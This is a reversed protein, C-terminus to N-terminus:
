KIYGSEVFTNYKMIFTSRYSYYYTYGSMNFWAIPWSSVGDGSSQFYNNYVYTNNAQKVRVGGANIFFNSYVVNYDGNRLSVMAGQNDGFTCFRVINQRSKISVAESDAGYTSNFVCYEVVTRSVYTHMADVGIRINEDGFDTSYAPTVIPSDPMNYFSCYRIKHYGPANPTVDVQLMCGAYWSQKCYVNAPVSSPCPGYKPKWEFNSNTIVNYQAGPALRIYHTASVNFFRLDVFTNGNGQSTILEAFWASIANIFQIGQFTIYTSTPMFNLYLGPEAQPMWIVGGSTQARITVNTLGAICWGGGVSSAASQIGCGGSFDTPSTDYYVGNALVLVDGPQPGGSTQVAYNFLATPSTFTTTKGAVAILWSFVVVLHTMKGAGTRMAILWASLAVLPTTKGAVTRV